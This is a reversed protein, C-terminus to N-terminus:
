EAVPADGGAGNDIIEIYASVGAKTAAARTVQRIARAVRGRRGIVRGMDEPNVRLRFITQTGEGPATTVEVDDPHEVLAKALYALTAAILGQGGTEEDGQAEAM